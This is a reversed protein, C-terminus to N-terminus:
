NVAKSSFEAQKVDINAYIEGLSVKCNVSDLTIVDDREDYIRYLWQKANQRAYQEVRMEDAKVLFCEKVSSIALYSELKQAKDVPSTSNSVIEFVMTPNRLVDANHDTFTPSGSVVVVDPFCVMDSRLQVQMGNVYIESKNGAVRTGISIAINTAILNHWRNRSPQGEFVESRYGGEASSKKGSQNLNRDNM